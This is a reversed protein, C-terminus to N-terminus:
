SGTLVITEKENIAITQEFVASLSRDKTAITWGDDNSYVIDGRGEAYIIEIALTMGATLIQTKELPRDLFGPIMPDQHLKKGVGHGTLSQVIDYGAETIMEQIILSINGVRNGAKAAQIAKKLTEEGVRLFREKEKYNQNTIKSNQTKIIQTWANDTHFGKYVMGVDITFVDGEKLVYPSPIGHVIQDNVCLCTAWKYGKVTTFSPTGGAHEIYTCAHREIEQLSVGPVSEQLLKQLINWLKKGGEKMISIDAVSQLSIM